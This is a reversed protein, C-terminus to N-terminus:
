KILVPCRRCATIKQYSVVQWIGTTEVYDLKEMTVLLKYNSINCEVVVMITDPSDSLMSYAYGANNEAM